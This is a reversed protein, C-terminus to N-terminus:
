TSLASSEGGGNWRESIAEITGVTISAIRDWRPGTAATEEKGDEERKGREKVKPARGEKEDKHRSIDPVWKFDIRRKSVGM